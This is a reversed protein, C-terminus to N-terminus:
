CIQGLFNGFYMFRQILFIVFSVRNLLINLIYYFMTLVLTINHLIKTVFREIKLFYKLNFLFSFILYYCLFFLYKLIKQYNNMFIQFRRNEEKVSGYNKKFRKQYYIFATFFFELSLNDIVCDAYEEKVKVGSCNLLSNRSEERIERADMTKEKASNVSKSKDEPSSIPEVNRKRIAVRSSQIEKKSVNRVSPKSPAPVYDVTVTAEINNLNEGNGPSMNKKSGSVNESFIAKSKSMSKTLKIITPSSAGENSNLQNQHTKSLKFSTTNQTTFIM